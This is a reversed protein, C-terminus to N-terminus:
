RTMLSSGYLGDSAGNLSAGLVDVQEDLQEKTKRTTGATLLEGVLDQYGASEGQMIPPHDFRMQVSVVPLKHNEVVIVRMGNKLTFNKSEGVKVLPAPGPAPAKSRDVQANMLAPTMLLTAVSFAIRMSTNMASRHRIM